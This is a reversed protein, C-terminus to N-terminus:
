KTANEITVSEITDGARLKHIVDLGSTEQGFVTYQGDLNALPALAFYFQSGGSDPAGTRAMALSGDIHKNPNNAYEDKIAYGPGGTGFQGTSGADAAAVDKSSASKTSPDGGQIVFGAVFRHFKIGDYFGKLSLEIFNASAIPADKEFFKAKITGKSTKIVAIESGNLKYTPTYVTEGQSNTSAGSSTSSGSTASGSTASGASKSGASTSGQDSSTPASSGCGSLLMLGVLVTLALVGLRARKNLKM